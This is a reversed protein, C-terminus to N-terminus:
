AEDAVNEVLVPLEIQLNSIDLLVFAYEDMPRANGQMKAKYAREDEFFRVSDDQTIAGKKGYVGLGVFYKSPMGLLAKGEELAATQMIEAPIPLLDRIWSGDPKRYTTAPMIKNWYDFPNCLFILDGPAVTRAKTPDAPDRAIKAVIAGMAVPSLAKLPTATQRPYVGDQVSATSSIDRTMGIPEDKGNGDVCGTELAMAIAESLTEIVYQAMWQPGLDILDHSICMFATLKLLTMNFEKLSGALEQTIAATVKGWKAMQGPKANLIFRTLYATNRFNLKDLLPHNKKITGIVGDIVTNPMAVDFNEIAMKPDAAQVAEGLKTFYNMEASTLTYMGRAAMVANDQNRQEIEEAAMALVADHVDSCFTAMAASMQEEDGSKFAAALKAANQKKANAVLDKSKISM